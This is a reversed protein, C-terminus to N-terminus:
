QDRYARDVFHLLCVVRSLNVAAAVAELALALRPPAIAKALSATANLSFHRGGAAPGGIARRRHM